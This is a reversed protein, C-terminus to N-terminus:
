FKSCMYGTTGTVKPNRYPNIVTVLVNPPITGKVQATLMGQFSTGAAAFKADSILITSTSQKPIKVKLQVLKAGTDPSFLRLVVAATRTDDSNLIQLQSNQTAMRSVDGCVYRRGFANSPLANTGYMSKGKSVVQLATATLLEGSSSIMAWGNFNTGLASYDPSGLSFQALGNAPVNSAGSSTILKGDFSFFNLTINTPSAGDNRVFIESRNIAVGADNLKRQVQNLYLVNAADSSAIGGFAATDRTFLTQAAVAVPQNQSVIRASGVFQDGGFITNTNVYRSENGMITLSQTKDSLVMGNADYFTVTVATDNTTTNQIAFQTYQTNLTLHRVLPLTLELAPALVGEYEDRATKSDNAGIVLAQVNKDSSIQAGGQFNTGLSTPLPVLKAGNPAVTVTTSSALAGGVKYIDIQVTAAGTTDPNFLAIKSTMVGPPRAAETNEASDQEPEPTPTTSQVIRAARRTAAVIPDRTPKPTAAANEQVPPAARVLAAFVFSLVILTPIAYLFSRKM